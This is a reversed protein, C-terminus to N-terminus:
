AASRARRPAKASDSTIRQRDSEREIFADADPGVFPALVIHAFSPLLSGTSPEASARTLTYILDFVTAIIAEVHVRSPAPEATATQMGEQLFIAFAARSDEVRQIGRPGVAYAEIFAVHAITPTDDLAQTIARLGEWIREPWTTGAFYGSSAASMLHQFGLEHIASFAEEKDRFHSYFSRGDVGACRTIQAITAASYGHQQVVLATAFMIRRRHNEAVQEESLRRRGPGLSAPMVLETAPLNPSREFPGAAALERWRQADEPRAYSASWRALEDDLGAFSRDGRRLGTALLRQVGGVIAALPVDPTPVSRPARALAAEIRAAVAVGFRDRADLSAPGGALSEKMLFQAEAPRQRAFEVMAGAAAALAQAPECEELAAGISGLLQDQTEELTRVFCDDRDRFYEYFTPRSVGAEAIVASVNAGAYGARNAAAIMGATIRERQTARRGKLVDVNGGKPARTRAM